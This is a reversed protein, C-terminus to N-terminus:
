PQSQANLTQRYARVNARHQQLTEAFAHGGSGDAVFYLDKANLPTLAAKLSALGPNTIPGPPLAKIHYTNYPHEFQLDARSLARGLPAGNALRHAYLVTPDSQLPMRAKLRNLFVAAIHSREADHGAEKEIISALTVWAHISPYPLQPDREAWLAQTTQTMTDQMRQILSQRQTGYTFDYTAPYLSGEPPSSTIQGQLYPNQQLMAVAFGVSRGEPLTIYRTLTRGERLLRSIQQQSSHPPIEYEGHKLQTRSGQISNALVFVLPYEILEANRLHQAIAYLGMGKPIIIIQSTKHHNHDQYIHLAFVGFALCSLIIAWFWPMIKRMM